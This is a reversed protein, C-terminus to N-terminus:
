TLIKCDSCALTIIIPSPNFSAAANFCLLTPMAMVSSTFLKVGADSTIIFPSLNVCNGARNWNDLFPTCNTFILMSILKIYLIIPNLKAKAPIIDGNTAAIKIGILEIETTKNAEIEM